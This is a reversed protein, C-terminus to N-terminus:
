VAVFKRERNLFRKKCAPCDAGPTHRPLTIKTSCHPCDGILGPVRKKRGFIMSFVGAHWLVVLGVPPFILLLILAIVSTLGSVAGGVTAAELMIDRTETAVKSAINNTVIQSAFIDRLAYDEIAVNWLESGVLVVDTGANIRGESAMDKMQSRSFPGYVQGEFHTFWELNISGQPPRPRDDSM